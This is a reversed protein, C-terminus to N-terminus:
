RAPLCKVFSIQVSSPLKAHLAAAFNCPAAAASLTDKDSSDPWSALLSRM